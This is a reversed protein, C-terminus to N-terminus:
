RKVSISLSMKMTPTAKSDVINKKGVSIECLENYRTCEEISLALMRRISLGMIIQRPRHQMVNVGALVNAIMNHATAPIVRRVILLMAWSFTMCQSIIETPDLTM